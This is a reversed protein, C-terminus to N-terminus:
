SMAPVRRLRSFSMPVLAGFMVSWQFGEGPTYIFLMISLALVPFLVM